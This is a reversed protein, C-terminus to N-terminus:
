FFRNIQVASTHPKISRSSIRLKWERQHPTAYQFKKLEDAFFHGFRRLYRGHRWEIWCRTTALGKLFHLRRSEAGSLTLWWRLTMRKTQSASSSEPRHSSRQGSTMGNPSWETCHTKFYVRPYVDPESKSAHYICLASCHASLHGPRRPFNVIKAHLGVGWGDLQSSRPSEYGGVVNWMTSEISQQVTRTGRVLRTCPRREAFITSETGHLERVVEGTGIKLWYCIRTKASM